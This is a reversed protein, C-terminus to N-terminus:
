IVPEDLSHKGDRDEIELVWLDPDYGRQRAILEDATREEVPEPGTRRTWALDGEATYARDFVTATGDLHNVKLLIAGRDADGRHAVYVFLGVAECRRIHASVWLDARLRTM